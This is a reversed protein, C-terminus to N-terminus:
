GPVGCPMKVSWCYSITAWVAWPQMPPSSFQRQLDTFCCPRNKTTAVAFIPPQLFNQTHRTATPPVPYSCNGPFSPVLEGTAQLPCTYVPPNCTCSASISPSSSPSLYRTAVLRCARGRWIMDTCGERLVHLLKAPAFGFPKSCWDELTLGGWPDGRGGVDDPPASNFPFGTGHEADAAAESPWFSKTNDKDLFWQVILRM